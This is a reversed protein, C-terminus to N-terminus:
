KEPAALQKQWRKPNPRAVLAVESQAARVIRRDELAKRKRRREM